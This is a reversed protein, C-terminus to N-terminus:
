KQWWAKFEDYPIVLPMASAAGKVGVVTKTEPEDKAPCCFSVAFRNITVPRGDPMKFERTDLHIRRAPAESPEPAPGRIPADPKTKLQLKPRATRATDTM